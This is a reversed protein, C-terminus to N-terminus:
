DSAIDQTYLILNLNSYLVVYDYGFCIRLHKLQLNGIDRSPDIRGRSTSYIFRLNALLCVSLLQTPLLDYFTELNSRRQNEVIFLKEFAVGSTMQGLNGMVSRPGM